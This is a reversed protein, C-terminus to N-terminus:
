SASRLSSSLFRLALKCYQTPSFNQCRPLICGISNETSGTTDSINDLIVIVSHPPQLYHRLAFPIRSSKLPAYLRQFSELGRIYSHQSRHGLLLGLVSLLRSRRANDPVANCPHTKGTSVRTFKHRLLFSLYLKTSIARSLGAQRTCSTLSLASALSGQYFM